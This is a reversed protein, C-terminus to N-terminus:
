KVNDIATQLREAIFSISGTNLEEITIMFLQTPNLECDLLSFNLYDDYVDAVLIRSDPFYLGTNSYQLDYRSKNQMSALWQEIDM